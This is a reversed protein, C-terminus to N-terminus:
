IVIDGVLVGDSVVRISHPYLPRGGVIGKPAVSHCPVPHTDAERLGGVAVGNVFIVYCLIILAYV